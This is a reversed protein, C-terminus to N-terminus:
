KIKTILNDLTDYTKINRINWVQTNYTKKPVHCVFGNLGYKSAHKPSDDIAFSISGSKSYPSNQCWSLKDSSFSLNDFEFKNKELWELTDCVCTDNDGPRATLIHIWYGKQRLTSMLKKSGKVQDLSLFGGDDIFEYFVKEPDIQNSKLEEIFYYQKSFIDPKVGHKKEIWKSFGDRFEVLVDDMDVIAVPQLKWTNKHITKMKELYLDKRSQSM